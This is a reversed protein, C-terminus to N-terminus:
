IPVSLYIYGHFYVSVPEVTAARSIFLWSYYSLSPSQHCYCCRCFLVVIIHHEHQHHHPPTTITTLPAPPPLPPPPLPPTTTTTGVVYLCRSCSVVKSMGISCIKSSTSLAEWTLPEQKLSLFFDDGDGDNCDDDDDDGDDYRTMTMMITMLKTVMITAMIIILLMQQSLSQHVICNEDFSM